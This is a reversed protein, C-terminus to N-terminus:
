RVRPAIIDRQECGQHCGENQVGAVEMVAEAAELWKGGQRQGSHWTKRPLSQSV